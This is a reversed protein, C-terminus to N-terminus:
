GGGKRTGQVGGAQIKQLSQQDQRTREDISSQLSCVRKPIRTGIPNEKICVIKDTNKPDANYAEIEENTLKKLNVVQHNSACSSFILNVLMIFALIVIKM